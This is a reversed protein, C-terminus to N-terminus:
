AYSRLSPSSKRRTKVPDDGHKSSTAADAVGSAPVVVHLAVLRISGQNTVSNGFFASCNRAYYLAVTNANPSGPTRWFCLRPSGRLLINLGM